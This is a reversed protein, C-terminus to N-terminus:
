CRHHSARKRSTSFILACLECASRCHGPSIGSSGSAHPHFRGRIKHTKMMPSVSEVGILDGSRQTEAILVEAAIATMRRMETLFNLQDPYPQFESDVFVSNGSKRPIMQLPLAILNGLGGKPM